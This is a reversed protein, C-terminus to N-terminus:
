INIKENYLFQTSSEDRIIREAMTAKEDLIAGIDEEITGETLYTIVMVSSHVESGIRHIRGVAQQMEVNSYSQQLFLGIRSRHLNIGTSGAAIVVLCVNTKGNQFDDMQNQRVHSSQGGKIVSYSIKAKELRKEAMEILQRSQAFVVVPEGELLYGQLDEMLIDLKCSPEALIMLGKNDIECYASAFQSLRISKSISNEAVIMDGQDDEAYMKEAMTKYAKAQKTGMQIYRIENIIPPLQPLIIHKPMRRSRPDFISFFEEEREPRIGFVEQGGWVNFSSFAYRDIFASKVPWEESDLFHLVPWLTDVAKTLPTATLAWRYDSDKSIAWVSRTQKSRPDKCRHSEDIVVLDWHRNLSKPQKEKETLAISGYASLKSHLRLSEYNIIVWGPNKESTKIIAERKTATGDVVYVPIGPWWMKIERAWNRKVSSPCVVLASKIKLNKAAVVVQCTKGAGTPDMLIASKASQLFLSGSQQFPYQRPDGGNVMSMNMRLELCPKIRTEVENKAWTFLDPGIELRDGFIARATKCHAWSVPCHWMAKNKDWRSGSLQRCLEKDRQDSKIYIRNGLIELYVKNM